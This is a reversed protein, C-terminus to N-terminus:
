QSSYFDEPVASLLVEIEIPRGNTKLANGVLRYFPQFILNDDDYIYVMEITDITASDIDRTSVDSYVLNPDNLVSISGSGGNLADVAKEPTIVEVEGEFSPNPPFVSFTAKIVHGDLETLIEVPYTQRDQNLVPIGEYTIYSSLTLIDADTLSDVEILNYVDVRKKLTLTPDILRYESGLIADYDVFRNTWESLTKKGSLDIKAVDHEATDTYELRLPNQSVSLSRSDENYYYTTYARDSYDAAVSMKFQDRYWDAQAVTLEPVSADLKYVGIRNPFEPFTGGFVFTLNKDKEVLAPISPKPLEEPTVSQSLEIYHAIVTVIGLILVLVALLVLLKRSAFVQTVNM